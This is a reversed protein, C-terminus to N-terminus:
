APVPVQATGGRRTGAGDTGGEEDAGEADEDAAEDDAVDAAGGAGAGPAATWPDAGGAGTRAAEGVADGPGGPVTDRHVVRTYTAVGRSVDLAVVANDVLLATRRETVEAAPEGDPAPVGRRVEYEDVGLRGTVVVPTGKALSQSVNFARDGFAKVTFWLTPGDAWEGTRPDRVRRTSAVRFSTWPTGSASFSIVPENGVHGTVTVNVDSM